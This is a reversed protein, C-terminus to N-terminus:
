ALVMARRVGGLALPLRTWHDGYDASHWVHGNALGAYVHGPAAPDTALGYAMHDLPQPLGGSLREWGSGGSSRFISGHAAGDHHAIPMRWIKPWVATPAAALYWIEPREPDAACAMAYRGSPGARSRRWTRGGDRSLAAGGGGAEYAWDGQRVHFQLAHCDRDAHRLHASWTRGGDASRVVAGAEVGALIVEPDDPSFAVASVYARLDPPEAPSFWWRRRAAQFGAVEAWRAGADRTRYLSAPKVGVLVDAPDHPSVAIARTAKGELGAREWGEGGDASRLVGDERTGAWLVSRDAPDIALCTVQQDPLQRQVHWTGDAARAARAIGPATTALLMTM